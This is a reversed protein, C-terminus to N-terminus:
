LKEGEQGKAAKSDRSEYLELNHYVRDLLDGMQEFDKQSFGSFMRQELKEFIAISKEVAEAGKETICIRNIRNDKADMQRDIYGGQELKKLSVAITATSVGLLRALGKQSVQPNDAVYMLLQHQSRYIGTTNLRQELVKRHLRNTRIYKEVLRSEETDYRQRVKNQM